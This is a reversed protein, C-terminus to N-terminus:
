GIRKDEAQVVLLTVIVNKWDFDLPYGHALLHFREELTRCTLLDHLGVPTVQPASFRLTFAPEAATPRSGLLAISIVVKAFAFWASHQPLCFPRVDLHTLEGLFTDWPRLFGM